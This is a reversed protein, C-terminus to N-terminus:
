SRPMRLPGPATGPSASRGHQAAMVPAVSRGKMGMTCGGSLGTTDALRHNQTWPSWTPMLSIVGGSSPQGTCKRPISPM